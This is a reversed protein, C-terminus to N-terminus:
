ANRRERQTRQTRLPENFFNVKVFLKGKVSGYQTKHLKEMVFIIDAWEIAETSVVVEADRNLGALDVELEEYEFFVAEATSSRL